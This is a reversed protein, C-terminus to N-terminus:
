EHQGAVNRATPTWDLLRPVEISGRGNLKGNTVYEAADSRNNFVRGTAPMTSMDHCILATSIDAILTRTDGL